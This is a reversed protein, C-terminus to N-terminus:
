NYRFIVTLIQPKNEFVEQLEKDKDAFLPFGLSYNGWQYFELIRKRKKLKEGKLAGLLERPSFFFYCM